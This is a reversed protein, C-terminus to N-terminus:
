MYNCAMYNVRSHSRAKHTEEFVTWRIVIQDTFCFVFKMLM